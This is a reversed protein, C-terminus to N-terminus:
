ILNEAVAQGYTKHLQNCRLVIETWMQKQAFHPSDKHKKQRLLSQTRYRYTDGCKTCCFKQSKKQPLFDKGCYLCSKKERM